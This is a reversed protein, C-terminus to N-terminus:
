RPPPLQQNDIGSRTIPGCPQHGSSQLRDGCAPKQAHGPAWVVRRAAGPVSAGRCSGAVEQRETIGVVHCRGPPERRQRASCLVRVDDGPAQVHDREVGRAYPAPVVIAASGTRSKVEEGPDARGAAGHPPVHEFRDPPEVLIVRTRLVDVECPTRLQGPKLYAGRARRYHGIAIAEPKACYSMLLESPSPGVRPQIAVVACSPHVSPREGFRSSRPRLNEQRGGPM